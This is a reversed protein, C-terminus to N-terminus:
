AREAGRLAAVLAGLSIAELILACSPAYAALASDGTNWRARPEPVAWVVARARQALRRLVEARPPRRNNRADGLVLLVTAPDILHAFRREVEVLVAGLDSRAYLDLGAEPLLHGNEYAAEIPRDVYVIRTVRAFASEAGALVGLLLDTAVSVSRSVDSLVVLRPKGPRRGRHEIDIM